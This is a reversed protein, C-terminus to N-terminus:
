PQEPSGDPDPTFKKFQRLKPSWHMLRDPAKVVLTHDEGTWEISEAPKGLNTRASPEQVVQAGPLVIVAPNPLSFEIAVFHLDPSPYAVAHADETEWERQLRPRYARVVVPEDEEAERLVLLLSEDGEWRAALVGKSRFAVQNRIGTLTLRKAILRAYYAGSQAPDVSTQKSTKRNIIRTRTIARSM